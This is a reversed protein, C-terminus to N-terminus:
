DRNLTNAPAQSDGWRYPLLSLLDQDYYQLEELLLEHYRESHVLDTSVVGNLWGDIVCSYIDPDHSAPTAQEIQKTFFFKPQPALQFVKWADEYPHVSDDASHVFLKPEEVATIWQDIAGDRSTEFFVCAALDYDAAAEALSSTGAGFGFGVVTDAQSLAYDFAARVSGVTGELKARTSDGEIEDYEPLIMDWGGEVIASVGPVFQRKNGARGSLAVVIGKREGATHVHGVAVHGNEGMPLTVKVPTYDPAAPSTRDSDGSAPGGDVVGDLWGNLVSHYLVPELFVYTMHEGQTTFFLKPEPALEFIEWAGRYPNVHDDESQIFLKPEDVMQIWRKVDYDPPTSLIFPIDFLRQFSVEFFNTEVFLSASEWLNLTGDFICAALDYEAGIRALVATGFSFGYGVVTDDQSLAYEFVVRASQIAGELTADGTSDGFGQYDFLIMDWGDDVVLPLSPVYRSKNDSLGALDVVIGKREGVTHVHWVAVHREEGAPLMIEDYTNYGLITPEFRVLINPQLVMSDIVSNCGPLVTAIGACVALLISFLSRKRGSGLVTRPNDWRRLCFGNAAERGPM